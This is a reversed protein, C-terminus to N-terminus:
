KKQAAFKDGRGRNSEINHVHVHDGKKIDVLANGISLGYKWVTEGKPIDRLAIKHGYPISQNANMSVDTVVGRTGVAEGTDIVEYVNTGVNDKADIVFVNKM